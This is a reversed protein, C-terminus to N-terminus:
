VTYNTKHKQRLASTNVSIVTKPKQCVVCFLANPYEPNFVAIYNGSNYQDQLYGDISYYKKRELKRKQQQM